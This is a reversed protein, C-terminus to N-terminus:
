LNNGEDDSPDVVEISGDPLENEKQKKTVVKKARKNKQPAAEAMGSSKTETSDLQVDDTEGKLSVTERTSSVNRNYEQVRSQASQVVKGNAGIVDGNGNVKMNGIAVNGKHQESLAAMDITKGGATKNKSM